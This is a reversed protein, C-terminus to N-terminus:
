SNSYLSTGNKLCDESLEKQSLQNDSFNLTAFIVFLFDTAVYSFFKAAFVIELETPLEYDENQRM